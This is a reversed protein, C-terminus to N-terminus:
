SITALNYTGTKVLIYAYTGDNDLVTGIANSSGSAIAYAGSAAPKVTVGGVFLAFASGSVFDSDIKVIVNGVAIPIIGNGSGSTGRKLKASADVDNVLIQPAKVNAGAADFNDDGGVVLIPASLATTNGFEGGFTVGIMERLVSSAM